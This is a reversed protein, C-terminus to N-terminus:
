RLSRSCRGPRRRGRRSSPPTPAPSPSTSATARCRTSSSSCEGPGRAPRSSRGRPRCCRARGHGPATMRRARRGAAHARARGAAPPGGGPGAGRAGALRGARRAPRRRRRPDAGRADALAARSAADPWPWSGTVEHVHVTWGARPSAAACGATTPTAEARAPRTTSGEPVVIHVAATM